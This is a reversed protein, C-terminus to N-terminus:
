VGDVQSESGGSGGLQMSRVVHRAHPDSHELAGVLCDRFFEFECLLATESLLQTPRHARDVHAVWRMTEGETSAASNYSEKLFSM